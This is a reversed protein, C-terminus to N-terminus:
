RVGRHRRVRERTKRRQVVAKCRNCYQARNGNSAFLAGCEACRKRGDSHMIEAYLEVDAPLVAARFYRCLLTYSILQPCVCVEGDDLLLCNGDDCNACLKRILKKARRFQAETMRPLDPM